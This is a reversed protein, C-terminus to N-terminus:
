HDGATKRRLPELRSNPSYSHKGELNYPSSPASSERSPPIRPLTSHSAFGTNSRFNTVETSRSQVSNNRSPRQPLPRPASDPSSMAAQYREHVRAPIPYRPPMTQHHSSSSEWDPSHYDDSRPLQSHPSSTEFQLKPLHHSEYEMTAKREGPSHNSYSAPNDLTFGPDPTRSLPPLPSRNWSYKANRSKRQRHLMVAIAIFILFVLGGFVSGLIMPLRSPKAQVRTNRSELPVSRPHLSEQSSPGDLQPISDNVTCRFFFLKLCLGATRRM